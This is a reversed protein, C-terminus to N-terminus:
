FDYMYDQTAAVIQPTTDLPNTLMDAREQWKVLFSGRLDFRDWGLFVGGVILEVGGDINVIVLM